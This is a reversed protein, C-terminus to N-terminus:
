PFCGSGTAMDCSVAHLDVAGAKAVVTSLDVDADHWRFALIKGSPDFTISIKEDDNYLRCSVDNCNVEDKIVGVQMVTEDARQTKYEFTMQPVKYIFEVNMIVPLQKSPDMFTIAMPQVKNILSNDQVPQTQADKAESSSQPLAGKCAQTTCALALAAILSTFQKM